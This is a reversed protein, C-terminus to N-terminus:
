IYQSYLYYQECSYIIKSVTSSSNNSMRQKLEELLKQQEEMSLMDVVVSIVNKVVTNTAGISSSSSSSTSSSTSKRQKKLWTEFAEEFKPQRSTTTITKRKTAKGTGITTTSTGAYSVKKNTCERKKKSELEM